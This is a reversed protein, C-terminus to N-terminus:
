KPDIGDETRMEAIAPHKPTEHNSLEAAIAAVVDPWGAGADRRLLRAAPYWGCDSRRLGWYWAPVRPLAVWVPHGLAGACHAAMTDVSVVLDTAALAAAFEDLPLPERTADILNPLVGRLERGAPGDQLNVWDIHDLRALPALDAPRMSRSALMRNSPNAQWVLGVKRRGARGERRYRARWAATQAADVGLYPARPASAGDPVGLVFPLSLLPCYADFALKGLDIKSAPQDQPPSLIADLFDLRAFFPRMPARCILTIRAGREALMALFRAGFFTDGLGQETFVAIHRGGVPDGPELARDQVAALSGPVPLAQEVWVPLRRRTEYHAFGLDFEGHLLQACALKFRFPDGGGAAAKRRHDLAAEFKGDQELVDGIVDHSSDGAGDLRSLCEVGGRALDARECALLARAVGALGEAAQRDDARSEAPPAVRQATTSHNANSLTARGPAAAAVSQPAFRECSQTVLTAVVGSWDRRTAQRVMKLSPYWPTTEGDLGWAWHSSHPVAMLTPHGMAGACHAAMSDVSILLDTAAIAAAYEDLPAEGPLPDVIGPAAKALERGTPGHQLNVIDIGDLAFLPMLDGVTMSKEAHSAGGPNAQFVLGVKAAGPRGMGALQRRWHAVRPENATWYPTERPVTAVDTGFWHALSLLPVWADFGLAAMNIQALPQDAPPALVTEVGPMRAFFPRLTPNCAVAVRAGRAALMPIYRAFMVADGLGQEALAVVRKGEIPQGPRLMLHRRAARSEPTAFGSWGPKDIRAEYLAFGQRYDGQRLSAMALNLGVQPAQPALAYARRLRVLSAQWDGERDLINAVVSHTDAATENDNLALDALARALDLRDLALLRRAANALIPRAPDTQAADAQGRDTALPPGAPEPQVASNM